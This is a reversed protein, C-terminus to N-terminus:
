KGCEKMRAICVLVAGPNDRKVLSSLKSVFKRPTAWSAPKQVGPINYVAVVKETKV